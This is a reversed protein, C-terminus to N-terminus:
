HVTHCSTFNSASSPLSNGAERRQRKVGPSLAGPVWQTPPQNSKPSSTTSFLTTEQGKRSDFVPLGAPIGNSYRGLYERETYETIKSFM